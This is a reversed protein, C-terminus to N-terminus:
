RKYTILSDNNDIFITVKKLWGIKILFKLWLKRIEKMGIMIIAGLIFIPVIMIGLPYSIFNIFKQSLPTNM